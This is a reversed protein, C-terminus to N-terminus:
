ADEKKQEQKVLERAQKFIKMNPKLGIIEWFTKVKLGRKAIGKSKYLYFNKNNKGIIGAQNIVLYLIGKNKYYVDALRCRLADNGRMFGKTEIMLTKGRVNIKFDPTYRVPNYLGLTGKQSPLINITEPEYEYPIHLLELCKAFIQENQSGESLKKLLM